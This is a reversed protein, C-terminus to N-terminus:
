IQKMEKLLTIMGLFIKRGIYDQERILSGYQYVREELLEVEEIGTEFFIERLVKVKPSDCKWILDRLVNPQKRDM